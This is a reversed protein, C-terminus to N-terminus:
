RAEVINLTSLAGMRTEDVLMSMKNDQLRFLGKPQNLIITEGDTVAERLSPFVSITANGTSDSNVVNLVRHLRYGVQLYDGPLLLRFANVTWGKTVLTTAMAAQAGNVLPSGSCSGQAGQYSSDGILFVNLRGRLEAIFANWTGIQDQTLKPLAIQGTWWDGGPSQYVQGTGGSFPNTQIAVMANCELQVQKPAPSSPVDIISVGNYTGSVSM